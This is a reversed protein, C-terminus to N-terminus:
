LQIPQLNLQSVFEAHKVRSLPKTLGDAKMDASKVYWMDILGAQLQQRTYHYKVLIHKTKGHLEPNEVLSLSGQNDGYIRVKKADDNTYSIEKFFQRLWAAEMAAKAMGYYEAELTSLAVVTQRKSQACIVGGAFLFVYGSTSKFSYRCGAYDSDSYGVLKMNDDGPNGGGYCIALNLTGKLYRLVRKGAVLHQPSPNTLFRCLVSMAYAIDPRTKLCFMISGVLSQYETIETQSAQEKYPVMDKGAGVEMPTSVPNCEAMGFRELIKTIYADQLLYVKRNPLDRVIRIGCYFQVPGLDDVKFQNALNEKFQTLEQGKKGAILFDDVHTTVLISNKRNIYVCDDAQLPEFSLRQLAKKLTSQWLRPSQKLGYLSKQLKCCWEKNSLEVGNHIYGPPLVVYVEGPNEGNLFAAIADMQHLELDYLAAYACIIKTSTDKCVGAYTQDYDIGYQQRFGQVVWRAKYKSIAYNQDRKTRFVLKGGLVKSGAPVSSKKVIEWTNNVKLNRYETKIAERWKKANACNLAEKVTTPDASVMEEVCNYATDYALLASQDQSRTVRNFEPKPDYVKNKTGKKRGKKSVEAQEIVDTGAESATDQQDDTLDFYSDYSIPLRSIEQDPPLVRGIQDTSKPLKEACLTASTDTAGGEGRDSHVNSYNSPIVDTQPTPLPFLSNLSKEDFTVNSSSVITRRSAVYVRYIHNGQYGVLIGIEARPITKQSLVRDQIPIQVYAKCGLVRLHSVSPIHPAFDPEVQDMFAQYPTKGQVSKTATRNVIAVVARIIEPWLFSPIGMEIMTTRAREVVTRMSRESIPDQEPTHPTTIELDAGIRTTLKKIENVTFEKGGDIRFCAVKINYKVDLHKIIWKLSDFAEHKNEYFQVWRIRTAEDTLISAWNQRMIGGPKIRLVDCHIKKGAKTERHITTKRTHRLPKALECPECVKTETPDTNETFKMGTTIQQTARVNALSLHAFRRHYLEINPIATEIAAPYAMERTEEVIYLDQLQCLVKGKNDTLNDKRIVGGMELLKKGSFLNAGSNPFYLTNLLKLRKTQGNALPCKLIVTGRGQAKVLGGMTKVSPLSGETTFDDEFRTIDHTIHVTTSSDALFDDYHLISTHTPYAQVEEIAGQASLAFEEEADGEQQKKERKGESSKKKRYEEKPLWKKGTNEEWEKLAKKNSKFCKRQEHRDTKCPPCKYTSKTHKDQKKKNNNYQPKGGYYATESAEKVRNEDVLDAIIADLNPPSSSRLAARQRQAWAPFEKSLGMVYIISHWDKIDTKKLGELRSRADKFESTYATIDNFNDYDIHCYSEVCNWLLVEGTGNYQQELAEWMELANKTGKVIATAEVSIGNRILIQTKSDGAEWEMYKKLAEQDVKDDFEDVYAPAKYRSNIYKGLGHGKITANMAEKWDSHNIAGKLALKSSLGFSEGMSFTTTYSIRPIVQSSTPTTTNTTHRRNSRTPTNQDELDEYQGTRSLRVTAPTAEPTRFGDSGSGSMGQNSVSELVTDSTVCSRVM